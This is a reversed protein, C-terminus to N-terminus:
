FMILKDRYDNWEVSSGLCQSKLVHSKLFKKFAGMNLSYDNLDFKGMIVQRAWNWIKSAKYVFQLNPNPTVFLTPNLDSLEFLNFMSIPTRFKMIKLVENCCYYVYLNYVNMIEQKNFLPKSHEKEYFAQGLKQAGLPRTRCCTKFKNLYAQKDGFLIRICKKQTKFLTKLKSDCVGGWSTICYTLHSEFLTHYLNKHLETPINEKIQCLIGITCALKKVLFNIHVDWSLNEDIFIGLFKTNTVKEIVEDGIKLQLGAYDFKETTEPNFHMFCCKDMNIHLKNAKM